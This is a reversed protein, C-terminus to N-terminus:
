CAGYWGEPFPIFPWALENDNAAKPPADVIRLHALFDEQPARDITMRVAELLPRVEVESV